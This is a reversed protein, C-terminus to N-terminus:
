FIPGIILFMKFTNNKVAIILMTTNMISIKLFPVKMPSKKRLFIKNLRDRLNKNSKPIRRKVKESILMTFGPSKESEIYIREKTNDIEQMDTKIRMAMNIKQLTMLVGISSRCFIVSDLEKAKTSNSLNFYWELGAMTKQPTKIM